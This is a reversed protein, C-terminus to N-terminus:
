GGALHRWQAPFLREDIAITPNPYRDYDTSWLDYGERNAIPIPRSDM